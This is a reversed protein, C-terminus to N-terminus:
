TRMIFQERLLAKHLKGTGTHPLVKVFLVDVPLWWKAVRGELYNLVSERELKQGPKVVVLMLPREQWKPQAIGIVAAEAIMLNGMAANERTISSIWEGGSNIVDKSRYTIQMYGDPDITAVDGTDFYGEDDLEGARCQRSRV